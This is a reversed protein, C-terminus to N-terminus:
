SASASLLTLSSFSESKRSMATSSALNFAMEENGSASADAVEVIGTGREFTESAVRACTEDDM